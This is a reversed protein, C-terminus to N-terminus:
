GVDRPRFKPLTFGEAVEEFVVEVPIGRYLDASDCEVVNALYRPGEELEIEAVIYPIEDELAPWYARHFVVWTNVIGNGSLETWEYRESWCEPCAPGPAWWLYGCDACQQMRLEHNRAAEWFPEDVADIAPLRESGDSM